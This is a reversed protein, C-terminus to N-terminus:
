SYFWDHWGNQKQAYSCVVVVEKSLSFTLYYFFAGKPPATWFLKESQAYFITLANPLLKPKILVFILQRISDVIACDLFPVNILLNREGCIWTLLNNEKLYTLNEIM